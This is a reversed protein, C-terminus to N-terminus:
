PSRSPPTNRRAQPRPCCCASPLSPPWFDVIGSCRLRGKPRVQPRLGIKNKTIARDERFVCLFFLMNLRDRLTFRAGIRVSIVRAVIPRGRMGLARFQPPASALVPGRRRGSSRGLGAKRHYTKRQMRIRDFRRKRADKGTGANCSAQSFGCSTMESGVSAATMLANASIRTERVSAEISRGRGSERNCHRSPGISRSERSSGRPASRRGSAAGTKIRDPPKRITGGERPPRLIPLIRWAPNARDARESWACPPSAPPRDADM